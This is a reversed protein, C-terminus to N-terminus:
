RLTLHTEIGAELTRRAVNFLQSAVFCAQRHIFYIYLFFRVKELCCDHRYQLITASCPRLSFPHLFLKVALVCSHQSCYQVFRSAIGRLAASYFNSSGSMRLVIPSTPVLEYTIYEQPGKWMASCFYPSWSSCLYLLETYIRFTASLVQRFRHVIPLPPSLPDSIDTSIALYSIYIYIYVYIYLLTPSRLRPHSPLERKSTYLFASSWERSKEVKGKIMVKSHHTNLLAVDIVIKQTKATVRCPISSRDGPGKAFVRSM